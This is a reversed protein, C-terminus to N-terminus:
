KGSSDWLVRYGGEAGHSKEALTTEPLSDSMGKARRNLLCVFLCVRLLRQSTCLVSPLAAGMLDRWSWLPPPKASHHVQFIPYLNLAQKQWKWKPFKPSCEREM